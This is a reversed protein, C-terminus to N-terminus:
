NLITYTKPCEKVLSMNHLCVLTYFSLYNNIVILVITVWKKCEKHSDKFKAYFIETKCKGRINFKFFKLM